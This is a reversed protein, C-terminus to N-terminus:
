ITYSAYTPAYLGSGAAGIIVYDIGDVRNHQYFHSHGSLVLNVHNPVFLNQAMQIMVPDEGHGGSCYPPNHCFVVKWPKTTSKLDSEVWNYQASGVSYSVM